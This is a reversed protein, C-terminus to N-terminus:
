GVANKWYMKSSAWGGLPHLSRPPEPWSTAGTVPATRDPSCPALSPARWRGDRSSNPFFRIWGPAAHWSPFDKASSPLVPSLVKHPQFQTRGPDGMSVGAGLVSSSSNPPSSSSLATFGPQRARRLLLERRRRRSCNCTLQPKPTVRSCDARSLPKAYSLKAKLPSASRIQKWHRGPSVGLCCCNESQHSSRFLLLM